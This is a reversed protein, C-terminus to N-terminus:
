RNNCSNFHIDHAKANGKSTRGTGWRVWSCNRLDLSELQPLSRLVAGLGETTVWECSQMHLSKLQSFVCLRALGLDTFACHGVNLHLLNETGVTPKSPLALFAHDEMSELFSVNLSQLGECAGIAATMVQCGVQKCHSMNLEQLSRCLKQLRDVLSETIQPCSQVSLTELSLCGALLVFPSNQVSFGADSIRHCGLVVGVTRNPHELTPHPSQRVAMALPPVM